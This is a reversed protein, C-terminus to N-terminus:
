NRVDVSNKVLIMASNSGGFGSATKLATKLSKQEKKTIINIQQTTGQQQYGFSPILVNNKLSEITIVTELLGSAGLTHGFYGKLSNTPVNQLNLRNFAVAEMEDNFLTATGHASIYDIQNSAIQAENLAKEISLFLGEGTRSPGSIHNADNINADGLIQISETRNENSVFVAVAAEGLNVGTRDADYPKCPENSMAQFSQFGSVVFPTLEDVAVIYANTFQEMEIFRKALSIAVVGSTCANSVVIPENKFGFYSNINQVLKDIFAGSLDNNALAAINGKTTSLILVSDDKIPNKEVIPSLATILLKEIRSGKFDANISQFHNNFLEDNIKGAYVSGIKDNIFVKEIASKGSLIKQFNDSTSFGLPSIINTDHIFAAM